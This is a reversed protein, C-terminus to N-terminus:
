KSVGSKKERYSALLSAVVSILIISAVVILSLRTNMHYVKAILMKVGIFTLVVALGVKLYRFYGMAGALVFYLSRLGLIAFVNSTFVIFPNTTIAFIAPISDVAFVLDTTEVMVLVLALPTLAFKGNLTTTFDSSKIDHTVQFFRRTMKIVFNQEPDVKEDKAFAMKVGTYILFAGFIYFMFSFNKILESGLWIMVGRMVLAGLIGWFLVRHQFQLPVGFYGFILAIVFVNDMSLSLEIIYGTIFQEKEIKGWDGVMMPAIFLGFCIALTFWITTWGMAEKFSVVHAKRHFVGLDLALFVLVAVIFVAWDWGTAANALM